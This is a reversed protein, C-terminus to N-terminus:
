RTMTPCSPLSPRRSRCSAWRATVGNLLPSEALRDHPTPSLRGDFAAQDPVTVLCDYWGQSESFMALM